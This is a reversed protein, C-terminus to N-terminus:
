KALNVYNFSGDNETAISKLLGMGRFREGTGLALTNIMVHHSNRDRVFRILEDFNEIGVDPEGDSMVFIQNAGTMALAAEMAGSLYTMDRANIGDVYDKAKQINEDSATVLDKDFTHIQKDFNIINFTDDPLLQDLATKLALKAKEIKHAEHMSASTDLLYIVHVAGGGTRKPKLANGLGNPGLLDPGDGFPVARVLAGSGDYALGRGRGYKAKGPGLEEAGTGRGSGTTDGGRISGGSGTGETIGGLGGDGRLRAIAAGGSGHGKGGSGGGPGDGPKDDPTADKALLNNGPLASRGSLGPTGPVGDTGQQGAGTGSGGGYGTGPGTGDPQEALVGRGHGGGQGGGGTGSATGGIGPNGHLKTLAGHGTGRGAGGGGVGPGLGPRDEPMADKALPDAATLIQSGGGGLMHPAKINLREGGAHAGGYSGAVSPAEQTDAGSYVAANRGAAPTGGGPLPSAKALARLGPTGSAGRPAPMGPLTPRDDPLAVGSLLNGNASLARTGPSGMRPLSKDRRDAAARSTNYAIKEVPKEPATVTGRLRSAPTPATAGGGALPGIKLLRELRKERVDRNGSALARITPKETDLKEVRARAAETKDPTAPGVPATIPAANRVSKRAVVRPRHVVKILRPRPPLVNRAIRIPTTPLQRLPPVVQPKPPEPTPKLEKPPPPLPRPELTVEIETPKTVPPVPSFFRIHILIGVHILLALGCFEPLWYWRESRM